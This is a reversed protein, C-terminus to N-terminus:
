ISRTATAVLPAANSSPMMGRGSSPTQRRLDARPARTCQAARKGSASRPSRGIPRHPCQLDFALTLASLRVNRHSMRVYGALQCSSELLSTSATDDLRMASALCVICRRMCVALLLLTAFGSQVPQLCENNHFGFREHLANRQYRVM